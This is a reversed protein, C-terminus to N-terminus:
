WLLAYVAIERSTCVVAEVLFGGSALRHNKEKTTAIM